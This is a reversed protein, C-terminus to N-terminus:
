VTTKKDHEVQKQRDKDNNRADERADHGDSSSEETLSSEKSPDVVNTEGEEMVVDKSEDVVSNDGEGMVIDKSEGAVMSTGEEMVPDESTETENQEEFRGMKRPEDGWVDDYSRKSM